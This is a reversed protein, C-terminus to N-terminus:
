LWGQERYWRATQRLGEENSFIYQYGLKTRLKSTNFARDKTYFAVRRRYLPPEIRLPRCLGECLAAALFFPWAPLRVVRLQRGYCDAIISGMEELEIPEPNGAIFVEGLAAPHTAALIMINTLDEVHILHYLRKGRGLIPFFRGAALRFLKLLRRDGPGYIACPRLVTHPLGTEAAFRRFWLEAEAKTVQYPDGPDFPYNEDAPPNEIHGHVGVTSIHIFRQFRPNRRAAQALLQTSVVHVRRYTEQSVKAERYAAALHFFYDVNEAAQAVTAPDFVQGRFWQIPVDQLDEIHSQPRAIARVRVGLACLKRVLCSGTFGTAGTVLVTTGAPLNLSPM